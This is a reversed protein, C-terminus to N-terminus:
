EQGRLAAILASPSKHGKIRHFRKSAQVLGIGAWRKVMDGKRWRKVNQSVERVTGIM